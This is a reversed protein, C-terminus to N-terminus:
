VYHRGGPIMLYVFGLIIFMCIWLSMLAEVPRIASDSYPPARSVPLPRSPGGPFASTINLLTRSSSGAHAATSRLTPLEVSGAPIWTKTRM